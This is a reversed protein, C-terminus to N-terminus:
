EAVVRATALVIGNRSVRLLYLGSALAGRPILLEKTGNGRSSRLIRGQADLLDIRHDASFPLDSGVWLRDTFPSPWAHLRPSAFPANLSTSLGPNEYWSLGSGSAYGLVDIDGDDDLDAAEMALSLDMPPTVLFPFLFGGSGDNPYARITVYPAPGVVCVLLDPLGDGNLDGAASPGITDFGLAIEIPPGFSGTANLCTYIEWGRRFLLDNDTDGDLDLLELWRASSLAPDLVQEQPFSGTGNNPFLSLGSVGGPTFALVLDTDGDSEADGLEMTFPQAGLFTMTYLAQFVGYGNNSLVLVGGGHIVIVDQDGDLDVDAAMASRPQALTDAILQPPGFSGTGNNEFWEVATSIGQDRTCLLDTDGDGDLDAFQLDRNIVAANSITAAPAFTGVGQNRLLSLEQNLESARVIEKDGDGDLDAARVLLPRSECTDLPIMPGFAGSGLNEVWAVFSGTRSACALDLDGDLDVDGLEIWVASPCSDSLVIPAGFSGTGDNAHWALETYGGMVLDLDGDNDLDGTRLCAMNAITSDYTIQQPPFAGNVHAIWHLNLGSNGYGHVVDVDGDGDLDGGDVPDTLSFGTTGITDPATFNGAGDNRLLVVTAMSRLLLDPDGDLDIDLVRLASVNPVASSIMQAISFVGSGDNAYWALSPIGQRIASVLDQDGDGDMDAAEIGRFQYGGNVDVVHLASFAGAGNNQVWGVENSGEWTGLVDLDGDGDLDTLDIASVGVNVRDLITRVGSFSGPGLQEYWVVRNDSYSCAVIDGDGDGDMDGISVSRPDITEIRELMHETWQALLVTHNILVSFGVVAIRM